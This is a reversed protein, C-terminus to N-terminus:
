CVLIFMSSNDNKENEQMNKRPDWSFLFMCCYCYGFLERESHRCFSSGHFSQNIFNTLHHPIKNPKGNTPKPTRISAIGTLPFDCGFQKRICCFTRTHHIKRVTIAARTYSHTYKVMKYGKRCDHAENKKGNWCFSGWNRMEISSRHFHIHKACCGGGAMGMWRECMCM